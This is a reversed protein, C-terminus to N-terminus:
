NTILIYSSRTEICSVLSFLSNTYINRDEYFTMQKLQIDWFTLLFSLTVTEKRKKQSHKRTSYYWPVSAAM